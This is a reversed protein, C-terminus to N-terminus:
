QKVSALLKPDTYLDLATLALMKIAKRTCTQAERSGAASAFGRTHNVGDSPIAFAAHLFPLAQSANGADSSSGLPVVLANDPNSFTVGMDRAHKAYIAILANNHVFDKYLISKEQVLSCDTAEAAAELCAEVRRMLVALDAVTPARVHYVVRSTEPMVIVNRGSELQVGMIKSPPKVQQRLLAINVYSAVAADLASAAEWPCKYRPSCQFQVTIQQSAALPLKVCDLTAPHALLAVDMDKFAGKQLLIEKGGFNEMGPCGLVMVKGHINKFEKMTEKVAIAAGVACEAVLNHGCAHGIEPLADYECIFAITPGGFGGPSTFEAKFATDLAYRRTVKFGRRELFECLKEHATAEKMSTEPNAWLFQSLDWLEGANSEVAQHVRAGLALAM